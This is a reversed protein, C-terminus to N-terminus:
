TFCGPHALDIASGQRRRPSALRRTERSVGRVVGGSYSGCHRDRGRLTCCRIHFPALRHTRCCHEAEGRQWSARPKVHFMGVRSPLPKICRSERGHGEAGDLVRFAEMPSCGGSPAVAADPPRSRRRKQVASVSATRGSSLHGGSLRSVFEARFTRRVRSGGGGQRPVKEDGM